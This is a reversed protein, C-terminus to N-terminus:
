RAWGEDGADLSIDDPNGSRYHRHHTKHNPDPPDWSGGVLRAVILLCLVATFGIVLSYFGDSQLLAVLSFEPM